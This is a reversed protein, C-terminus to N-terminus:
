EGTHLQQSAFLRMAEDETFPFKMASKKVDYDAGFLDTGDKHFDDQKLPNKEFFEAIRKDITIGDVESLGEALMENYDQIDEVFSRADSVEERIDGLDFITVSDDQKRIGYNGVINFNDIDIAGHKYMTIILDRMKQTYDLAQEVDSTRAGKRCLRKLYEVFPYIKEQVIAVEAEIRGKEETYFIFPNFDERTDVILSPAALGRGLRQQAIKTGNL